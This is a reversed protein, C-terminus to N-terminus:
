RGCKTITYKKIFQKEKQSVKLKYFKKIAVWRELYDCGYSELPPMWEHPGKASKRRNDEKRVALLNFRDNAFQRKLRRSWKYGGHDHAHKLPVIHDIDLEHAKTYTQGTYPGYWRGSQVYCRNYSSFTVLEQSTEILIEARLNQCDQDEDIWHEWTSRDYRVEEVKKAKMPTCAVIFLLFLMVKM